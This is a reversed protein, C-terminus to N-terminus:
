THSSNLRTSKRDEVLELCPICKMYYKLNLYAGTISYQKVSQVSVQVIYQLLAVLLGATCKIAEDSGKTDDSTSTYCGAAYIITDIVSRLQNSQSHMLYRYLRHNKINLPNKIVSELFADTGIIVAYLMAILQM